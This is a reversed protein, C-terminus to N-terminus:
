TAGAARAAQYVPYSDDLARGTSRDTIRPDLVPDHCAILPKRYSYHCRVLAPNAAVLHQVAELDGAICARFLTWVEIGTGTSWKLPRGSRLEEPQTM